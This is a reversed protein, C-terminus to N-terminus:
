AELQRRERLASDVLTRLTFPDAPKSAVFIRSNPPPAQSGEWSELTSLFLIPCGPDCAQLTQAVASAPRYDQVVIVMSYADEALRCSLQDCDPSRTEVEYSETSLAIRFTTLTSADDDILLIRPKEKLMALFPSIAHFPNRSDIRSPCTEVRPTCILM